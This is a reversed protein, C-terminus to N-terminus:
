QNEAPLPMDDYVFQSRSADAVVRLLEIACGDQDRTVREVELVPVSPGMRMLVSEQQTAPRASVLETITTPRHGIQVWAQYVGGVVRERGALPTGAILSLPSWSEQVQAVLDDATAHRIRHIVSDEPNIELRNAIHQDAPEAVVAVVKMDGLVGQEDCATQWPGLAGGPTLVRAYRSLKLRVPPRRVITGRRRVAVLRGENRLVKIADRITDRHVGYQTALEDERPIVDGTQYGPEGREIADRITDAIQRYRPKAM